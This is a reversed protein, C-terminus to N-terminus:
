RRRVLKLRKYVTTKAPGAKVGEKFLLKSKKVVKGKAKPKVKLVLQKTKGAPIKATRVTTAAKGKKLLGLLSVKCAQGVAAPCKAKVFLRKGKLVAPGVLSGQMLTNLRADTMGNKGNNGNNGNEGGGGNGNSGPGTLVVNDFRAATTGILGLGALSVTTTSAIKIAYTHGAVLSAPGSKAIFPSPGTVLESIAKSETGATKDVLSATYNLTGQLELIGAPAFQRDLSLTGTGGDGVNFDPSEMTADAKFLGLVSVTVSSSESISGPPNGNAGDYAADASCLLVNCEALKKAWGEASGSFTGGGPPYTAASATSGAVAMVAAVALALRIGFRM